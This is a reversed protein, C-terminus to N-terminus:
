PMRFSAPLRMSVSSYVPVYFVGSVGLNESPIATLSDSFAQEIGVGSQAYAIAVYMTLLCALGARVLRRALIHCMSAKIKATMVWLKFIAFGISQTLRHGAVVIDLIDSTSMMVDNILMYSHHKIDAKVRV